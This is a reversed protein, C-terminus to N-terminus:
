PNGVNAHRAIQQWGRSPSLTTNSPAPNLAGQFEALLEEDRRRWARRFLILCTSPVVLLPLGLGGLINMIDEEPPIAGVLVALWLSTCLLGFISFILSEATILLRLRNPKFDSRKLRPEFQKLLGPLAADPVAGAQWLNLLVRPLAHMRGDSSQIGIAEYRSLKCGQVVRRRSASDGGEKPKKRLREPKIVTPALTKSILRYFNLTWQEPRNANWPNPATFGGLTEVHLPCLVFSFYM